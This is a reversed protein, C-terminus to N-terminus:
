VFLDDYNVYITSIHEFGDENVFFRNPIFDYCNEITFQKAGIVEDYIDSILIQNYAYVMGDKKRLLWWNIFHGCDYDSASTVLCSTDHTLLRQLGQEWQIMYEEVTWCCDEIEFTEYFDNGIFLQSLASEKDRDLIRIQIGKNKALFEDTDDWYAGVTIESIKEGDDEHTKHPPIFDYCTEPTFLRNKIAEKYPSTCNVHYQMRIKGNIKYLLWWEVTTLRDDVVDLVLCTKDYKELRKLGENWQKAYDDDNWVNLSMYFKTLRGNITIGGLMVTSDKWESEPKEKLIIDGDATYQTDDKMDPSPDIVRIFLYKKDIM